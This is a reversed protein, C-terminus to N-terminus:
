SLSSIFDYRVWFLYLIVILINIGTPIWVGKRCSFLELLEAELGNERVKSILDQELM